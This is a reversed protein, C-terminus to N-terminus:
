GNCSTLTFIIIIIIIIIIVVRLKGALCFACTERLCFASPSMMETSSTEPYTPRSRCTPGAAKHVCLTEWGGVMVVLELCLLVLGHQQEAAALNNHATSSLQLLCGAGQNQSETQDDAELRQAQAALLAAGELDGDRQLVNVAAKLAKLEKCRAVRQASAAHQQPCAALGLRWTQAAVLRLATAREAHTCVAAMAAYQRAGAAGPRVTVHSALLSRGSARQRMTATTNTPPILVDAAESLVDSIPLMLTNLEM